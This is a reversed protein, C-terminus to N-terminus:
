EKKLYIHKNEKKHFIVEYPLINSDLKSKLYNNLQTMDPEKEGYVHAIIKFGNTIYKMEISSETIGEYSNLHKEIVNINEFEPIYPSIGYSIYQCDNELINISGDNLFKGTYGTKYLKGEGFPNDIVEQPIFGLSEEVYLDGWGGYMQHQLYRNLIHANVTTNKEKFFDNGIAENLIEVPLSRKSTIYKEPIRPYLDRIKETGNGNIIINIICEFLDIFTKLQDEDFINERYSFCYYYYNKYLDKNVVFDIGVRPIDTLVPETILPTNGLQGTSFITDQYRFFILNPDSCFYDNSKSNMIKKTTRIIAHLITENDDIDFRFSHPKALNGFIRNFKDNERGNNLVYIATEDVNEFLDLALTQALIFVTNETTSFKKCFENFKQISIKEFVGEIDKIDNPNGFKANRRVFPMGHMILNQIEGDYYMLSNPNRKLEEQKFLVHEFNTYKKPEVTRDCYINDIDTMFNKMSLGDGACHSIDIFFYNHSETVYIAMRFVSDDETYQYPKVIVKQEEEWEKDTLKVIPIDIKRDDLRRYFFIGENNLYIKEKLEVHIDLAKEISQKLKLLDIKEHLRYIMPINGMKNNKFGHLVIQNMPEVQYIERVSFDIDDKMSNEEEKYNHIVKELGLISPNRIIDKLKMRINFKEGLNKVMLTCNFSDLGNEYFDSDIGITERGLSSCVVDYIIKQTDTTPLQIDNIMKSERECLCELSKDRIIKNSATKIFPEETIILKVIKEYPALENNKKEIIEWVNSKIDEKAIGHSEAYVFNPYVASCIIDNVEDGYVMIDQILPENKFLIEITEPSVNEGNSLIILNKKRGKYYLYNDEDISGLDGTQFWGDSTFAEKTKEPDKYYEKMISDSKLQIEGDQIRVQLGPAIVGISPDKKPDYYTLTGKGTIETSGYSQGINVGFRRYSEIIEASLVSGGSIIKCLNKGFVKNKIEEDSSGPHNSKEINFQNLLNKIISPVVRITTPQYIRLNDLLEGVGPNFAIIFGFRIGLLYDSAAFIHHLPLINLYIENRDYMSDITSFIKDMLNFHTIVVGKKNGTTGSTFLILANDKPAIDKMMVKDKNEELIHELCEIEPYKNQDLLIFKKVNKCKEKLNNVKSQFESDYFLIDVDAHNVCYIMTEIYLNPDLPVAVNGSFMTSIYVLLYNISNRGIIGVHFSRSENKEQGNLWFSYSQCIKGMQEYNMEDLSDNKPFRSFINSKYAKSAELIFDKFSKVNEKKLLNFGYENEQKDFNTSTM